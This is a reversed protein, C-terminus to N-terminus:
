TIPSKNKKSLLGIATFLIVAGIAACLTFVLLMNQAGWLQCIFGATSSSILGGIATASALYSQARVTDDSSVVKATYHVTGIGYVAFGLLQTSQAIYVGMPDTALYLGLCKVVFFVASVRLWHECKMWKLLFAFGFMVPLEVIASVFTAIGQEAAGGGKVSLIQLLFNCVTNHSIQLFICGLLFLGYLPNKALFNDTKKKQNDKAEPEPLGAEGTFHYLVVGLLFVAGNVCTLIAMATVGISSVLQGTLLAILSFAISGCGRAIGFNTNSGRAIADMGFANGMAPLAQLLCCGLALGAVPLFPLGTGMAFGAAIMSTGMILLVTYVKLKPIRQVLEGLLLQLLCSVGTVLGLFLSIQGDSFGFAYLFNSSFSLLIGYFSWMSGHLLGYSITPAFKKM